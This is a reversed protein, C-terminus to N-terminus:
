AKGGALEGLAPLPGSRQIREAGEDSRGVGAPQYEPVLKKLHTIVAAEDSQAVLAKLEAIWAEILDRSVPPGEFIKIKDHYTPLINERETILEACIKEPPRLGVFQIEIDEVPVLGSLRIMNRALDIIRIPEGMDLVFIESGKWMTSTQLILQVAERVTM